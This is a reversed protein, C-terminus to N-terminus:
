PSTVDVNVNVELMASLVLKLYHTEFSNCIIAGSYTEMGTVRGAIWM